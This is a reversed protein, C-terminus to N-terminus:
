FYNIFHNPVKKLLSLCMYCEYNSSISVTIQSFICRVSIHIYSPLYVNKHYISVQRPRFRLASDIQKNRRNIEGFHSLIWELIITKSYFAFIFSYVVLTTIVTWSYLSVHPVPQRNSLLFLLVHFM